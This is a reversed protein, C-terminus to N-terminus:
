VKEKLSLRIIQGKKMECQLENNDQRKLDSDSEYEQHGFPNRLRLMQDVTATVTVMVTKGDKREASVM